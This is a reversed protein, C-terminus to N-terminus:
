LDQVAHNHEDTAFFVLRVESVTSRYTPTSTRESDSAPAAFALNGAYVTAVLFLSLLWRSLRNCWATIELVILMGSFHFRRRDAVIAPLLPLIYKENMFVTFPVSTSRANPIYFFHDVTTMPLRHQFKLREYQPANCFESGIGPL